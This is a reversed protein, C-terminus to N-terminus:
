NKENQKEYIDEKNKTDLIFGNERKHLFSDEKIFFETENPYYASKFTFIYSSIFVTILIIYLIANSKSNKKDDYDLVLDFRQKLKEGHTNYLASVRFNNDTNLPTKDQTKKVMNLISELYEVRENKEMPSITRLDCQIEFIHDVDKNFIYILPNWWFLIKLILIIIKKFNDRGKIHNLEHLFINRLTSDSLFTDPLYIAYDALGVVMPVSIKDSRYIKIPDNICLERKTNELLNIDNIDSYKPMNNLYQKFRYYLKINKFTMFFSGIFWAFLLFSSIAISSKSYIPMRLLNIIKPLVIKSNLHISHKLEFNFLLRFITLTILLILPFVKFHKIFKNKSKLITLLIIFFNILIISM